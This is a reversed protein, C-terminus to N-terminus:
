PRTETDSVNRLSGPPVRRHAVDHLRLPILVIPEAEISEPVEFPSKPLPGATQNVLKWQEIRRGSTQIEVPAGNIDWPNAALPGPKKVVRLHRDPETVNAQPLGYNWPNTPYCERYPGYQDKNDVNVWREGIRLAYLLPGREITAAGKHWRSCVVRMPLRLEASAGPAV